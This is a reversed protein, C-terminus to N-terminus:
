SNTILLEDIPQRFKSFSAVQRRIRHRTTNWRETLDFVEPVDIYSLVFAAGRAHIQELLNSLRPIDVARFTKYGFEGRDLRGSYDYPPDLYYLTGPRAHRVSDAFDVTTVSAGQLVGSAAVLTAESPLAGTKAGFPVNFIGKKNERYIGNFCFRNLYLFRSARSVDSLRNPRLTRLQYYTTADVPHRITARWLAKPKAKLVNYFQILEANIDSLFANTPSLSFFLCASGAFPEVYRDYSIEAISERLQPILKRKSGAWRLVSECGMTVPAGLVTDADPQTSM